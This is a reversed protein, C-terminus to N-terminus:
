SRPPTAGDRPAGGTPSATALRVAVTVLAIGLVLEISMPEDLLVVGLVAALIPVAFLWTSVVSADGRRLLVSWLMWAIASCAGAAAVCAVLKTSLAPFPEAIAATALLPPAAILHQGVVLPVIPQNGASTIVAGAAWSVAAALLFLVGGASTTASQHLGVIAVGAFGLLAGAIRQPSLREGLLPGAALVVLVPQLYVIAAAPGAEVTRLGAVQLGIFAYQNTVALALMIALGRRSLQRLRPAFPLLLVAAVTVRGAAVWVPPGAELALRQIIFMGAWISCLVAAVVRTDDLGRLSRLPLRRRASRRLSV